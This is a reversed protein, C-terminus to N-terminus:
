GEEGLYPKAKELFESTDKYYFDLVGEWLIKLIFLRDVDKLTDDDGLLALRSIDGQLSTFKGYYMEKVIRIAVDTAKDVEMKEIENLLEEKKQAVIDTNQASAHRLLDGVLM